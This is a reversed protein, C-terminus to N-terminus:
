ADVSATAEDVIIIKSRRVLARALCLLQRQGRSFNIGSEFVLSDLGETLFDVKAKRLVEYLEEDSFEQHPDLNSRITGSFLVPGQPVM